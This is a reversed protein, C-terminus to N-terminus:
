AIAVIDGKKVKNFMEIIDDSKMTICGQTAPRGITKEHNTGHIYIYRLCTDVDGGKNIGKQLGDLVLIRSLILDGFESKGDWIEGTPIRDKFVAWKVQKKGIKKCIRHVGQPTKKSGFKNGIGFRSTSISYEKEIKSARILLLRQYKVLVLIFNHAKNPNINKIISSQKKIIENLKM